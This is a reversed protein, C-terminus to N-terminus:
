EVPYTKISLWQEGAEDEYYVGIASEIRRFGVPVAKIAQEFTHYIKTTHAPCHLDGIEIISVKADENSEQALKMSTM